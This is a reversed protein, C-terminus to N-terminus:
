IRPIEMLGGAEAAVKATLAVQMSQLASATDVLPEQGSAAKLAFDAFVNQLAPLPEVQGAHDNNYLFVEGKATIEVQGETGLVKMRCDMGGHAPSLLRHHEMIATANQEQLFLLQGANRYYPDNPREFNSERALVHQYELGTIWRLADIDHILLDPIPGGSLREDFFWPARAERKEMASRLGYSQVVVGIAGSRVIEHMKAYGPNGRLTFLQGVKLSPNQRVLAATAILKDQEIMLPKDATVHLGAQLADIVVQGQNIPILCVAAVDLQEQAFMETHDEYMRAGYKEALEDARAGAQAVAVLEIEDSEDIGAFVHPVHQEVGVLGVRVAM